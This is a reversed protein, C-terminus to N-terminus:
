PDGFYQFFIDAIGLGFVLAGALTIAAGIAGDDSLPKNLGLALLGSAIVIMGAAIM